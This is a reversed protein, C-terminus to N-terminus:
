TKDAPPEEGTVAHWVAAASSRAVLGTLAVSGAALGTWLLKKVAGTDAAHGDRGEVLKHQGNSIAGSGAAAPQSDM